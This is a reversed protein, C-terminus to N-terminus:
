DRRSGRADPGHDVFALEEAGARGVGVGLGGGREPERQETVEIRGEDFHHVLGAVHQALHPARGVGAGQGDGGRPRRAHLGREDVGDVGTVDHDDRDVPEEALPHAVHGGAAPGLHDRDLVLPALRDVDLPHQSGVLRRRDDRGDM